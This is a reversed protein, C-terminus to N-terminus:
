TRKELLWYTLDDWGGGERPLFGQKKLTLGPFLRQYLGGFDQKFLSGPQGRYPVEELNPAYYEGCLVYRRSCRVIEAMVLPLTEPPQHILVGTTFVLDFHADKFPLSRAPAWIANVHPMRRHVETLAQLNIDVGYVQHEPVHRGIWELNVGINCGVELVNSVSFEELLMDWFPVRGKGVELNRQIYENGFDGAWLEELRKAENPTSDPM